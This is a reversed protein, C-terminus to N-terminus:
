YYSLVYLIFIIRYKIKKFNNKNINNPHQGNDNSGNSLLLKFASVEGMM